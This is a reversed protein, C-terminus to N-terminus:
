RFGRSCAVLVFVVIALFLAGVMSLCALCGLMGQSVVSASGITQRGLPSAEGGSNTRALHSVVFCLAVGIAFLLLLAVAPGGWPGAIAGLIVGLVGLAALVALIPKTRWSDGKVDVDAPRIMRSISEVPLESIRTLCVPCCRWSEELERGCASCLRRREVAPPSPPISAAATIADPDPVPALCRPCTFGTAPREPPLLLRSQCGPCIIEQPMM